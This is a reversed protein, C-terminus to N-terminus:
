DLLCNVFVCCDLWVCVFCLCGVFLLCVVFENCVVLLCRVALCSVRVRLLCAVFLWCDILM